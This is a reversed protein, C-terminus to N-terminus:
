GRAAGGGERVAPCRSCGPSRASLDPSRLRSGAEGRGRAPVGRERHPDPCGRRAGSVPPPPRAAAGSPRPSGAMLRCRRAGGPGPGPGGPRREGGGGAGLGRLVQPPSLGSVELRALPLSLVFALLVGFNMGAEPGAPQPCM